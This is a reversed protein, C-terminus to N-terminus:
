CGLDRFYMNASLVVMVRKIGSPVEEVLGLNGLVCGDSTARNMQLM